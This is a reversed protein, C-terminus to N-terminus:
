VWLQWLLDKELLSCTETRAIPLDALPLTRLAPFGGSEELKGGQSRCGGPSAIVRHPLAAPLSTKSNQVWPLMGAGGEAKVVDPHEHPIKQPTFPAAPSSQPSLCSVPSVSTQVPWQEPLLPASDWRIKPLLEAGQAAPLQSLQVRVFGAQGGAEGAAFPVVTGKLGPEPFSLDPLQKQTCAGDEGAACSVLCRGSPSWPAFPFRPWWRGM